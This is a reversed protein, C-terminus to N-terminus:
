QQALLSTLELNLVKQLNALRHGDDVLKLEAKHQLAFRVSNEYPVIDDDWGHVIVVNKCPTTPQQIAYGNLYFAPALLMLGAVNVQSSAVTSVYGGMSSGVLIIDGELSKLHGVLREVREDPSYLDQYNISHIHGYQKAQQAMATIKSGWPGSEKGHSFVIHTTM